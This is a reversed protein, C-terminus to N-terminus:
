ILAQASSMPAAKFFTWTRFRNWGVKRVAASVAFRCKFGLFQTMTEAEVTTSAVSRPWMSRHSSVFMGRQFAKLIAGVPLYKPKWRPGEEEPLCHAAALALHLSRAFAIAEVCHGADAAARKYLERAMGTIPYTDRSARNYGSTLVDLRPTTEARRWTAM